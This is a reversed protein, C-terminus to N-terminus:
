RNRKYAAVRSIIEEQIRSCGGKAALMANSAVARSGATSSSDKELAIWDRTASIYVATQSYLKENWVQWGDFRIGSPNYEEGLQGPTKEALRDLENEMDHLSDETTKQAFAQGSPTERQQYSLGATMWSKDLDLTDADSKDQASLVGTKIPKDPLVGTKIYLQIESNEAVTKKVLEDGYEKSSAALKCKANDKMKGGCLEKMSNRVAKLARQERALEGISRQQVSAQAAVPNDSSQQAHGRVPLLFMSSLLLSIIGIKM